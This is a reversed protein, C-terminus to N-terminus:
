LTNKYVFIIVLPTLSCNEVIVRTWNPQTGSNMAVQEPSAAGELIGFLQSRLEYCNDSM